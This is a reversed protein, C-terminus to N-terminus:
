SWSAVHCLCCSILPPVTTTSSTPGARRLPSVLSPGARRTRIGASGRAKEGHHHPLDVGPVVAVIRQVRQEGPHTLIM